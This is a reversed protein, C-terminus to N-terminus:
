SFGQEQSRQDVGAVDGLGPLGGQHTRGHGAEGLAVGSVQGDVLGDAIGVEEEPEEGGLYLISVKVLMIARAIFIRTSIFNKVSTREM